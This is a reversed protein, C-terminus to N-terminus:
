VITKDSIMGLVGSLKNSQGLVLSIKSNLDLDAVHWMPKLCIYNNTM